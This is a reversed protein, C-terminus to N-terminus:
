RPVHFTMLQASKLELDHWSSTVKLVTIGSTPYKMSLRHLADRDSDEPNALGFAVQSITPEHGILLLTAATDVAANIEAIMSGPAAGYLQDLYNVPAPIKTLRLTERTRVASSCLVQDIHPVNSRLWDGALGAERIGRSALPRDYDDVNDPYASKAHRMLVLTHEGTTM